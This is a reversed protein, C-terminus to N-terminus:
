PTEWGPGRGGGARSATPPPPAAMWGPTAPIGPEAVAGGAPREPSAADAAGAPIEGPTGSAGLASGAPLEPPVTLALRYGGGPVPGAELQGGAAAAREALGALGSGPARVERGPGDDVVEVTSPTVRITVRSAQAHRVVNTVGERVVWGFLERRGAPV